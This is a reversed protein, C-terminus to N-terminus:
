KQKEERMGAWIGIGNDILAAIVILLSGGEVTKLEEDTLEILKEM